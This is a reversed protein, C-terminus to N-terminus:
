GEFCQLLLEVPPQEDLEAIAALEEAGEAREVLKRIQDELSRGLADDGHTGLQVGVHGQAEVDDPALVHHKQAPNAVPDVSSPLVLRGRPQGPRFRGVCRPRRCLGLPLRLLQFLPDPRPHVKQVKIHLSSSASPSSSSSSFLSLSLSRSRFKTSKFDLFSFYFFFFLTSNQHFVCLGGGGM